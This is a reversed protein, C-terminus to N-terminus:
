NHKAEQQVQQGQPTELAVDLGGGRNLGDGPLHTLLEDLTLPGEADGYEDM